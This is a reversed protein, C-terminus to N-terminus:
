RRKRNVFTRGSDTLVADRRNKPSVEILGRNIAQKRSISGLRWVLGGSETLKFPSNNYDNMVLSVERKVMGPLEDNANKVAETMFGSTPRETRKAFILPKPSIPSRRNPFVLFPSNVIVIAQTSGLPKDHMRAYPLGAGYEIRVMDGSSRVQKISKALRGRSGTATSGGLRQTQQKLNRKATEEVMVAYSGLVGDRVVADMNQVVRGLVNTVSNGNTLLEVRLVRKRTLNQVNGRM